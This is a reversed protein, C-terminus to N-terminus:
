IQASPWKGPECLVLELLEVERELWVNCLLDRQTSFFLCEPKNFTEWCRLMGMAVEELMVRSSNNKVM